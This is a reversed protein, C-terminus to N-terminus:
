LKAMDIRLRTTLEMEKELNGLAQAGTKTEMKEIENEMSLMFKSLEQSRGAFVSQAIRLRATTEAIDERTPGHEQISQLREELLRSHTISHQLFEISAPDLCFDQQLPAMFEEILRQTQNNLEDRMALEQRFLTDVIDENESASSLSTSISPVPELMNYSSKTHFVIM